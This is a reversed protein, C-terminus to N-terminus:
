LDGVGTLYAGHISQYVVPVGILAFLVVPLALVAAWAAKRGRWGMTLRLHLVVSYVVWSVLSWTEIPDWGWYRGWAENAWIAGAVIMITLFIFGVSLLRYAFDDLVDEAPLKALLEATLGRAHGRALIVLAIAFSGIFAGYCLKAFAVHITLWWSALRSSIELEATPAFMSGALMLFALPMLVVGAIRLPRYRWALVGLVLVSAFAFSSVVEYFGLYPGHQVRIWRGAIAAAHPALGFLSVALAAKVVSERRFAAGVAFLGSGVAYVTVAAWMLLVEVSASM